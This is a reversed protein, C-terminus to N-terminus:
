NDVMDLPADYSVMGKDGNGVKNSQYFEVHTDAYLVCFGDSHNDTGQTDDCAIVTDSPLRDGLPLGKPMCWQARSAYSVHTGNPMEFKDSWGPVNGTTTGSGTDGTTDGPPTKGLMAGNKNDDTTSPCIFIKSETLTGSWYLAALFSAGKFGQGRTLATDTPKVYNTDETPYPYYRNGGPGSLYQQLCKGIQSLNNTCATKKASERIKSLSPLLMGALIAIIAIVVLLEILTFARLRKLLM